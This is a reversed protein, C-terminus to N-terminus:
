PRISMADATPATAAPRTGGSASIVLGSQYESTSGPWADTSM